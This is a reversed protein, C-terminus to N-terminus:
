PRTRAKLAIRRQIRLFLGIALLIAITGGAATTWPFGSGSPPEKVSALIAKFSDLPLPSPPVGLLSDIRADCQVLIRHLEEDSYRHGPGVLTWVAGFTQSLSSEIPGWQPLSPYVRGRDAAQVMVRYVPDQAWVKLVAKDAPLFGIRKTYLDMNDPRTLFVLLKLAAPDGSKTAPIALNSGGVFAVSGAPGVPVPFARIGAKGIPSERLGGSDGAIRTKMVLESTALVFAQRGECFADAVDSTNKSLMAPDALSDQVFSLYKQIGRLTAPDLLGSEWKDDAGKRVFDGGESWIWPAFNHPINWDSGGPFGYPRVPTLSDKLFKADRIRRLTSRFKTWDAIDVNLIELSDMIRRNALLVRVDVFWPVAWLAESGDVRCTKGSTVLFRNPRIEAVHDDLRALLGRSAFDSVWSTGIQVVDPGGSRVKLGSDIRRHAESWDLVKVEVPIGTEQTFAHLREAIIAKPDSGNPM